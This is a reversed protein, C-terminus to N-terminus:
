HTRPRGDSMVLALTDLDADALRTLHASLRRMEEVVDASISPDRRCRVFADILVNALASCGQQSGCNERALARTLAVEIQEIREQNTM